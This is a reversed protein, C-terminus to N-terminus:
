GIKILKIENIYSILKIKLCDFSVKTYYNQFNKFIDAICTRSQDFSIPRAGIPLQFPGHAYVTSFPDAQKLLQYQKIAHPRFPLSFRLIKGLSETRRCVNSHKIQLNSPLPRPSGPSDPCNVTDRIKWWPSYVTGDTVLRGVAETEKGGSKTKSEVALRSIEIKGRSRNVVGTKQLPTSFM